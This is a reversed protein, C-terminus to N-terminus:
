TTYRGVTHATTLGLEKVRIMKEGPDNVEWKYTGTETRQLYESGNEKCFPTAILVDEVHRGM